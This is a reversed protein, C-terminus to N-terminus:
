MIVHRKNPDVNLNDGHKNSTDENGAPNHFDVNDDNKNFDRGDGNM